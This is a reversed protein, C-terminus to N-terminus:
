SRLGAGYACSLRARYVTRARESRHQTRVTHALCHVSRLGGYVGV